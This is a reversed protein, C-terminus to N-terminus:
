AAAKARRVSVASLASTPEARSWAALFPRRRAGAEHWCLRGYEYLVQYTADPYDTLPRGLRADRYGATLAKREGEPYNAPWQNGRYPASGHALNGAM